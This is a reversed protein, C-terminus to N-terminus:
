VYSILLNRNRKVSPNLLYKIVSQSGSASMLWGTRDTVSISSVVDGAKRPEREREKPPVRIERTLGDPDV